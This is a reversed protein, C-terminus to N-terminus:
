PKLRAVPGCGAKNFDQQDSQQTEGSFRLLGVLLSM